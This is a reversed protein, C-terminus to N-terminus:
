QKLKRLINSVMMKKLAAGIDTRSNIAAIKEEPTLLVPAVKPGSPKPPAVSAEPLVGVPREESPPQIEHLFAAPRTGRAPVQAAGCCISCYCRGSHKM